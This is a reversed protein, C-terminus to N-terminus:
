QEPKEAQQSDEPRTNGYRKRYQTPTEGYRTKFARTFYHPDIYGTLYAIEAITKGTSEIFMKAKKMRFDIVFEVPSTNALTKLKNYFSTRGLGSAAVMHDIKMEPNSYNEEMWTLLNTVFKEDEDDEIDIKAPEIIITKRTDGSLPSTTRRTARLKLFALVGAAVLVAVILWLWWTAWWARPVNVTIRLEEWKEPNDTLYARVVLTNVGSPLESLMFSNDSGCSTWDDDHGELMYRFRVRSQVAYNLANVKLTLTSRKSPLTVTGAEPIYLTMDPNVRPSSDKGNVLVSTIIINLDGVSDSLLRTNDVRYCGNNAGFLPSGGPLVTAANESFIINDAVADELYVSFARTDHNFMVINEDTAVWLNADKDETISKIHNSPLGSAASYVTFSPKGRDIGDYHNLGGTMTGVWLSDHSDVYVSVIDDSSISGPNSGDQRIVVARVDKTKDDYTLSVLGETTGAWVTGDSQAALSRVKACSAIPYGHLSNGSSLFKVNGGDRLVLNVGGGYTGVWMRGLRDIIISQVEDSSISYRDGPINHYRETRYGSDGDRWMRVIGSGRTGIWLDGDTDQRIAYVRGIPEGNNDTDISGLLRGDSDYRYLAGAKTGVWLVSDADLFFAKVENDVLNSPHDKIQIHHVKNEVSTVRDIGRHHTSLWVVEPSSVDFQLVINSMDSPNSPDNHFHDLTNTARNYRGFGGGNMSVWVTGGAELIRPAPEYNSPPVQQTFTSLKQSAPDYTMVGPQSTIIWLLGHSDALMTDVRSPTSFIQSLYGGDLEYSYLGSRSTGIYLTKGDPSASLATITANHLLPLIKNRGNSYDYEILSGDAAGWIVHEGVTTFARIDHHEALTNFRLLESKLVALGKDTMAWVTGHSDECLGNIAFGNMPHLEGTLRNTSPDSQFQMVGRGRVEVWVDGDTAFLPNYMRMDVFDPYIEAMRDFTDTRRNIRFLRDDYMMVWINDLADEYVHLVRNHLYPISEAEGENYNVFEKGDFRSLGEWTGIWIYGRSDHLIDSVVTGALGDKKAYHEVKIAGHAMLSAILILFLSLSKLGHKM